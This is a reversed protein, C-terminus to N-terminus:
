LPSPSSRDLQGGKPPGKDVMKPMTPDQTPPRTALNNAGMMAGTKRRTLSFREGGWGQLGPHVSEECLHPAQALLNIEKPLDKASTRLRSRLLDGDPDDM